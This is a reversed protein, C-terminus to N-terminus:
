RRSVDADVTLGSSALRWTSYSLAFSPSSTCSVAVNGLLLTAQRIAASSQSFTTRTVRGDPALVFGDGQATFAAFSSATTLGLSELGIPTGASAFNWLPRASDSPRVSYSGIAASELIWLRNDTGWATAIADRALFRPDLGSGSDPPEADVDIDLVFPQIASAASWRFAVYLNGDPGFTATAQTAQAPLSRQVLVAREGLVANLERYRVIRVSPDDSDLTAVVYVWSGSPNARRVVSGLRWGTSGVDNQWVLPAATQTTISALELDGGTTWALATAPDWTTLGCSNVASLGAGSGPTSNQAAPSTGLQLATAGSIQLSGVSAASSDVTVLLAESRPGEVGNAAASVQLTHTGNTLPPLPSNCDFVGATSSSCAAQPLQNRVNDVYLLFVYGAVSDATQTWGIHETGNITVPPNSTSPPNTPTSTGSSGCGALGISIALLLVRSQVARNQWGRRTLFLGRPERRAASGSTRCTSRVSADWPQFRGCSARLSM